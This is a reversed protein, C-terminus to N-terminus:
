YCLVSRGSIEPDILNLKKVYNVVRYPGLPPSEAPGSPLVPSICFVCKAQIEKM